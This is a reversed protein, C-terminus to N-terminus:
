AADDVGNKGLVPAKVDEAIETAPSSRYAAQAAVSNPRLLTCGASQGGTVRKLCDVVSEAEASV